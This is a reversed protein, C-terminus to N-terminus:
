ISAFTSIMKYIIPLNEYREDEANSHISYLRDHNYFILHICDTNDACAHHHVEAVELNGIKSKKVIQPESIYSNEALNIAENLSLINAYYQNTELTVKGRVLGTSQDINTPIDFFVRSEEDQYISYTWYNPYQISFQYAKSTYTKWDAITVLPTPLPHPVNTPSRTVALPGRLVEGNECSKKRLM